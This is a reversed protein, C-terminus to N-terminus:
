EEAHVSQYDAPITPVEYLMGKGGKKGLLEILISYNEVLEKPLRPLLENRLLENRLLENKLLENKLLENGQLKSSMLKNDILKNNPLKNGIPEGM